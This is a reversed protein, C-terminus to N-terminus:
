GKVLKILNSNYKEHDQYVLYENGKVGQLSCAKDSMYFLPREGDENIYSDGKESLPLEIKYVYGGEGAYQRALLPNDTWCSYGHPPEMQDYSPNFEQSLGRYLTITKQKALQSYKKIM